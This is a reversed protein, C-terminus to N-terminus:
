FHSDLGSLQCIVDGMCSSYSMVSSTKNLPIMDDPLIYNCSSVPPGHHGCAYWRTIQTLISTIPHPFILYRMTLIDCFTSPTFNFSTPLLCFLHFLSSVYMNLSIFVFSSFIPFSSPSDWHLLGTSYM